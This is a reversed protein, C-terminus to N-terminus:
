EVSFIDAESRLIVKTISDIEDCDTRVVAVRVEGVDRKAPYCQPEQNRKRPAVREQEVGEAEHGIM